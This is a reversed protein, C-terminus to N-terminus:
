RRRSREWVLLAWTLVVAGGGAVCWLVPRGLEQGLSFGFVAAVLGTVLWLLTRAEVSMRGMGREGRTRPESSGRQVFEDRLGFLSPALLGLAAAALLMLLAVLEGSRAPWVFRFGPFFSGVSISVVLLAYALGLVRRATEDRAAVAVSLLWLVAAVGATPRDQQAPESTGVTGSVVLVVLGVGFLSVAAVRRSVSLPDEHRHPM